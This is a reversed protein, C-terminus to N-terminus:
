SEGGETNLQNLRIVCKVAAAAFLIALTFNGPTFAAVGLVAACTMNAVVTESAWLRVAQAKLNKVISEMRSLMSPQVQGFRITKQM